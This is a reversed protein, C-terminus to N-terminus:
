VEIVISLLFQLSYREASSVPLYDNCRAASHLVDCQINCILLDVPTNRVFNFGAIYIASSLCCHPSYQRLWM